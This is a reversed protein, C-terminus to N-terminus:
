LTLTIKNANGRYWDDATQKTKSKLQYAIQAASRHSPVKHRMICGRVWHESPLNESFKTKIGAKDLMSKIIAPLEKM